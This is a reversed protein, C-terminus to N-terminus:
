YYNQIYKYRTKENSNGITRTAPNSGAIEQAWPLRILWKGVSVNITTAGPNSGSDKCKHPAPM